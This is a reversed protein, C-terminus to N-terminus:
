TSGETACRRSQLPFGGAGGNITNLTIPLPCLEQHWCCYSNISMLSQKFNFFLAHNSRKWTVLRSSVTVGVFRVIKNKDLQASQLWLCPLHNSVWSLWLLPTRCLALHIYTLIGQRRQAVRLLRSVDCRYFLERFFLKRLINVNLLLGHLYKPNAM